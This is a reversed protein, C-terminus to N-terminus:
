VFRRYLRERRIVRRRRRRWLGTPNPPITSTTGFTWKYTMAQGHGRDQEVRRQKEM